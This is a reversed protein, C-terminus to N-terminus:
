SDRRAFTLRAVLSRRWGTRRFEGGGGRHGDAGAGDDAPLGLHAAVYDVDIGAIDSAETANYMESALNVLGAV